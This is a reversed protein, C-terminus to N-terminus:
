LRAPPPACDRFTRARGEDRPEIPRM